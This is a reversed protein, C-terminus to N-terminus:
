KKILKKYESFSIKKKIKDFIDKDVRKVVKLKPKKVIDIVYEVLGVSEKILNNMGIKTLRKGKYEVILYKLYLRRYTDIFKKEFNRKKFEKFLEEYTFELKIDLEEKLFARMLKDYENYCNEVNKNNLQKLLNDVITKRLVFKREKIVLKEKEEVKKVKSLVFYGVGLLRRYNLVILYGIVRLLLIGFFWGIFKWYNKFRSVVEFSESGVATQNNYRIKVYFVHRGEKVNEPIGLFRILSKNTLEMGITEEKSNIVENEMDKIGYDVFLDVHEVDGLNLLSINAKVEEGKNFEKKFLDLMVDFLSEKDKVHLIFSTFKEFDNTRFILKGTYVGFDINNSAFIEVDVVFKEVVPLYFSMPKIKTFKELFSNDVVVGLNKDGLNTVTIQKDLIRGRFLDVNMLNPDLSFDSILKRSSGGGGGGGPSVVPVGPCIGCDTSCSTCSEGSDCIGDGCCPIVSLSVNNSETVFGGDTANFIVSSSGNWNSDPTFTLAGSSIAVTINEPNTSDYFLVNSTDADKFYDDLDLGTWAFNRCWSINSINSSLYNMHNHLDLNTVNTMNSNGVTDNVWGYYSYNGSSINTVNVYFRWDSSNYKMFESQYHMLIDEKSLSRNYIRVEDITGNFSENLGSSSHGIVLDHYNFSINRSDSNSNELVGNVFIRGTSGNFTAAIHNFNSDLSNNAYVLLSSGMLHVNGSISKGVFLSDNYVVLSQIRAGSGISGLGDWTNGGEYRYLEGLCCTGAYLSNNYVVLSEVYPVNNIGDHGLNGVESWNNDSNYVHVKGNNSGAYFKDNYVELSYTIGFGGSNSIDVWNSDTNRRYIKGISAAYLADNFVIFDYVKKWTGISAIYTWDNDSNYRYISGISTGAYLTNNYVGLSSISWRTFSGDISTWNFTSDYRYVKKSSAVYLSGNYVKLYTGSLSTINTWVNVGDYRFTDVNGGVYLSGNWVEMSQVYTSPFALNAGLQGLDDFKEGLELYPVLDSTIKLDYVGKSVVSSNGNLDKVKVWAEITLDKSIDLSSINNITINDDIGDFEYAGNYKGTKNFLPCGGGGCVGDTGYSSIDKFNTDNENLNSNNNLNLLLVLSDGYFRYNTNNWNFIFSDLNYETITLNVEVSNNGVQSNNTLTPDVFDIRPFLTGKVSFIYARTNSDNYSSTGAFEAYGDNDIDGVSIWWTLHSTPSVVTSSPNDIIYEAESASTKNELSSGGLFVYMRGSANSLDGWFCVGTYPYWYATTLIDDISDNNVDGVTLAMAFRDCRGDDFETKLTINADSHNYGGLFSDGGYFVNIEGASGIILDNISDNNVDGGVIPYSGNQITINGSSSDFTGNLTESGLFVTTWGDADDGLWDDCSILLDSLNDGSIDSLYVDVGFATADYDNTITVNAETVNYSVAGNDNGFFLYVRGEDTNAGDYNECGILLDDFSDNNVDGMGVKNGCNSNKKEGVITVNADTANFTENWTTRGFFLYIKGTYSGYEVAGVALDDISDNNFDGVSMGDGFRNNNSEAYITVDASSNLTTGGFYIFVRGDDNGWLMQSIVFDNIGDGDLDGDMRHHAGFSEGADQDVTTWNSVPPLASVCVVEILVCLVLLVILVLVRLGVDKRSRM